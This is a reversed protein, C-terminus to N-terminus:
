RREGLGRVIQEYRAVYERVAIVFGAHSWTLPSVSLPAGTFPHLQEALVGSGRAHRGVWALIDRPGALDELTRATAIAHEALWLTCVFWPNGPAGSGERAVRQYDDGEYRAVGGVEGKCTLRSEVARMTSAVRPDDAAFAGFAFVGYLSADVTDDVTAVGCPGATVMRAFRGLEPRYLHEAMARKMDEARAAYKEALTTEGFAEAFRAASLLGGVVAGTTFATIGRREEWLDYSPGPLGTGPDRYSELFRAAKKVLRGYLPKISEIDRWREFHYWLAWIVLATEDEQIPLQLDFGAPADGFGAAETSVRDCLTAEQRPAIWPHWSSGLTGDPAYKHLLYGDEALHEACFEFFRLSPIQHGALDLAHAALAGDRPWCYCYTDRAYGVIDSDTAAVISGGADAHTRLVLLSRRYLGIVDASLDATEGPPQSAWLKWYARTREVFAQPGRKVVKANLERVADWAGEWRPGVAIWYYAEAAGDADFVCDAGVVSDV